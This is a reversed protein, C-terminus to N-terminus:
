GALKKRFQSIDIISVKNDYNIDCAELYPGTKIYGEINALHKRIQSLDTITVKGDGNIDGQIVLNYDTNNIKLVSATTIIDNNVLLNSKSNYVKLDYNTYVKSLLDKSTSIGLRKLYYNNNKNILEISDDFRLYKKEKIEIKIDKFIDEVRIRLTTTGEKLGEIISNELIAVDDNLIDYNYNLITTNNPNLAINLSNIDFKEGVEISISDKSTSISDVAIYDELEIEFYEKKTTNKIDNINYTYIVKYMGSSIIKNKIYNINIKVQNNVINGITTIFYGEEVKREDSDYIEVNVGDNIFIDDFSIETEFIGGYYSDILSNSTINSIMNIKGVNSKPDVINIPIEKIKNNVIIILKTEGVNIGTILGENNIQAITQDEIKYNVNKLTTNNPIFETSILVYDNKLLTIENIVNSNYILNINELEIFEYIEFSIEDFVNGSSVKINYVGARILKPITITLTSQNNKNFDIIYDFNQSINNEDRIYITIDDEELNVTNYNLKISGGSIDFIKDNEYVVNPVTEIDVIEININSYLIELSTSQTIIDDYIVKITYKGNETLIDKKEISIYNDNKINNVINFKSTVNTNNSDYVEIKFKDTDQINTLTVPLNFNDKMSEVRIIEGLTFNIDDTYAKISPIVISDLNLNTVDSWNRGNYAIFSKGTDITTKEFGSASSSQVGIPLTVSEEASYRVIISFDDEILIPENLVLTKYGEYEAVGSGILDRTNLDTTKSLYVDFETYGPFGITVEKLIEKNTSKKEFTNAAYSESRGYGVSGIMGLNDYYYVNDEVDFDINSFSVVYKCINTDEYSIYYYGENGKETGWSNKIIFAGDSKPQITSKFYNKSITDDWGVISIAHNPSSSGNHYLYSGNTYTDSSYYSAQLVGNTMLSKKITTLAEETCSEFNYFTIDNVDIISNQDLEALSIQKLNYNYTIGLSTDYYDEMPFDVELIPGHLKTLYSASTYANAGDGVRRTTNGDNNTGDTFYKYSTDYSIHMEALDYNKGYNKLINSEISSNTAFAWCTGTQKQNKVSTVYNKGDVNRLDFSTPILVEVAKEQFVSISFEPLISDKKTVTKCVKPMIYEQKEEDTLKLWKEYEDSYECEQISNNNNYKIYNQVLEVKSVSGKLSFILLLIILIKRYNM